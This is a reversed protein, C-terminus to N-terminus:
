HHTVNFHRSLLCCITALKFVSWLFSVYYPKDSSEHNKVVEIALLRTNIRWQSTNAVTSCSQLGFLNTEDVGDKDEAARAAGLRGFEQGKQKLQFFPEVILM